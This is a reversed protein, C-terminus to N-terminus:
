VFALLEMVLTIMCSILCLFLSLFLSSLPCKTFSCKPAKSCSDCLIATQYSVQYLLLVDHHAEWVLCIQQWEGRDSKLAILWLFSHLLLKGVTLPTTLIYILCKGDLVIVFLILYIFFTLEMWIHFRVSILLRQIDGYLQLKWGSHM